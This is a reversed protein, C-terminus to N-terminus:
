GPYEERAIRIIKALTEVIERRVDEDLGSVELAQKIGRRDSLDALIGRSAAHAWDEAWPPEEDPHNSWWADPADFPYENGHKLSFGASM